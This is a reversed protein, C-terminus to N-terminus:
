LLSGSLVGGMCEDIWGDMWGDVWSPIVIVTVGDARCFFMREKEWVLEDDWEVWGDV